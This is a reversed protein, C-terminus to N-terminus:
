ARKSVKKERYMAADAEAMLEEASEEGSFPALGISASLPVRVGDIELVLRSVAQAM